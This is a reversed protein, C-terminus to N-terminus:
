DKFSPDFVITMERLEKMVEPDDSAPLPSSRTIATKGTECYDYDGGLAETQLVVGGPGMSIKISCAGSTKPPYWNRKIKATILATLKEVESMIQGRRVTDRQAEFFEDDMAAMEEELKRLEEEKRKKEAEAEKRKREAEEKRKREAEAKKRKEEELRQKEELEEKKKEEELKKQKEAALQKQKEQELKQQKEQEIKEQQKRQKEAELRKQEQEKALQKKREEELRKKEAEQQKKIANADPKPLEKATVIKANIPADVYEHKVDVEDDWAFNFLLLGIVIVHVAVSLIIPVINKKESM